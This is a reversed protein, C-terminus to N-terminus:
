PDFSPKQWGSSGARTSSTRVWQLPSPSILELPGELGFLEMIFWETIFYETHEIHLELRECALLVSYLESGLFDLHLTLFPPPSQLSGSPVIGPLSSDWCGSIGLFSICLSSITKAPGRAAVECWHGFRGGAVKLWNWCGQQGGIRFGCPRKLM